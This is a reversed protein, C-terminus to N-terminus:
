KKASRRFAKVAERIPEQLMGRAFRAGKRLIQELEKQSVDLARCLGKVDQSKVAAKIKERDARSFLEFLERVNEGFQVAASKRKAM